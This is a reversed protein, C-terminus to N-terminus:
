SCYALRRHEAVISVLGLERLTRIPVARNMHRAGANWWPGRGNDAYQAAESRTLGRKRLELARTRPRKWQRWLLDRLQRRVWSDLAELDQKAEVLRFYGAWGRLIPTLQEVTRALTTGRGWRFVLKLKAKLRQVSEPAVKLRPAAQRTVSYGLFKREWPQAVASKNRNVRLRLKTTLFRELSSLVREGAAKSKVYVNCDDAYRVFRHGRRGM